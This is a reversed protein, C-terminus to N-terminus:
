AIYKIFQYFKGPMSVMCKWFQPEQTYNGVEMWEKRKIKCVKTQRLCAWHIQTKFLDYFTNQHVWIFIITTRMITDKKTPDLDLFFTISMYYDNRFAHKIYIRLWLMSHNWKDMMFWSLHSWYIFCCVFFYFPNTYQVHCVLMKVKVTKKGHNHIM